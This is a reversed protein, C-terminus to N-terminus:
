TYIQLYRRFPLTQSTFLLMTFIPPGGVDCLCIDRVGLRLSFIDRYVCLVGDVSMCVCCDDCVFIRKMCGLVLRSVVWDLRWEWGGDDM